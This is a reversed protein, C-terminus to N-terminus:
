LEEVKTQALVSGRALSFLVVQGSTAPLLYRRPRVGVSGLLKADEPLADFRGNANTWYALVDPAPEGGQAVLLIGEQRALQFSSGDTATLRRRANPILAIGADESAASRPDPPLTATRPMPTRGAIVVVFGTPLLVALLLFTARHARRLGAIM